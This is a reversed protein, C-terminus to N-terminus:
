LIPTTKLIKKSNIQSKVMALYQHVQIDNQAFLLFDNLQIKNFTELNESHKEDFGISHANDFLTQEWGKWSGKLIFYQSNVQNKTIDKAKNELLQIELQYNENRNEFIELKRELEKQSYNMQKLISSAIGTFESIKDITNSYEDSSM